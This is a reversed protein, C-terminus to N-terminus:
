LQKNAILFTIANIVDSTKGAGQGDLVKMVILRANPAVGEYQSGNAGSSGILGAVHTGHGFDDYAAAFGGGLKVYDYFAVIRSEVAALQGPQTRIIVAQQATSSGSAVVDALARDLKTRRSSSDASAPSAFIGLSLILVSVIPQPRFNM